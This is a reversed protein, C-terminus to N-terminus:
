PPGPVVAARRSAARRELAALGALVRVQEREGPFGLLARGVAPLPEVGLAALAAGHDRDGDRALKGAVPDASATAPLLAFVALILLAM